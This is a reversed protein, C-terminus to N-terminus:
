NWFPHEGTVKRTFNIMGSKSSEKMKTTEDRKLEENICISYDATSSYERFLGEVVEVSVYHDGEYEEEDFEVDEIVEKGKELREKLLNEHTTYGIKFKVSGVNKFTRRVSIYFNEM